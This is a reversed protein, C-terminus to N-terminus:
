TIHCSFLNICRYSIGVLHKIGQRHRADDDSIDPSSTRLDDFHCHIDETSVENKSKQQTEKSSSVAPKSKITAPQSTSPMQSRRPSAVPTVNDADSKSPSLTIGVQEVNKTVLRPM